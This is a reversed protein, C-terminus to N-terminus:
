ISDLALSFRSACFECDVHIEGRDDAMEAREDPPFRLIVSRIHDPDCRCGRSLAIGSYTRVEDENFLRWLITEFPLDPDALEESTVTQALAEVHEWEPHDLRTHIRDRGEEGEPLHQVLLGGAVHRGDASRRSALRVLSPLQESQSFYAEAAEALSGGELPVIGQYREGTVAQDFTIALYGRGFLAFLSPDTPIEALREPDHRIYGRLEGNRYDAVLLEIAGGDAQAQLTLQGEDHKLTSGLLAALVIAEALLKEVAPPYGHAGLVADLVPGLRVLRGRAHREPIAFGLATDIIQIDSTM